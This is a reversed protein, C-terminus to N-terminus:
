HRSNKKQRKEEYLLSDAEKLIEELSKNDSSFAKCGLSISIEFPENHVINWAKCAAEINERIVSLRPEALGAALIVFEDGGLRGVIDSARFCKKLIEAEAKIARDGADHGYTDNITKLGDMDGFIVMGGQRLVLAIDITQQGLEMFGRRNLLGTLEDTKSILNLKAAREHQLRAQNEAKSAEWADSVLRAFAFVMMSYVLYEHPGCKFVMYGYKTECKYLPEVQYMGPSFGLIGEPLMGKRPDFEIPESNINQIYHKNNDFSAYVCAREPLNPCDSKDNVYLPPDYICLAAATVGFREINEKFYKRLKAMNLRVQGSIFFDNLIYFQNKKELWETGVHGEVANEVIRENTPSCSNRFVPEANVYIESQVRKKDILNLLAEVATRGQGFIDQSVTTLSPHSFEARPVNDFGSVLIQGPVKIKKRACFDLAAFAMDDNLAVVADFDFAGKDDWYEELHRLSDEYTFNGGIIFREDFRIGRKRLFNLIIQTRETAERSGPINGLVCIKKCKRHDVITEMIKQLGPKPDCLISTRKPIKLGISVMPIDGFGDLFAAYDEKKSFKELVSSCVVLGDINSKNCFHTLIRKQYDFPHYSFNLEGIPFLFLPLGKEMCLSRAGDVIEKVYDSNIDNLLIGIRAKGDKMGYMIYPLDTKTLFFSRPM